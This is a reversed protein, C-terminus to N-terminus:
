LILQCSRVHPMHCLFFSLVLCRCAEMEGRMKKAIRSINKRDDIRLHHKNMYELMRPGGMADYHTIFSEKISYSHIWYDLPSPIALDFDSCRTSTQEPPM